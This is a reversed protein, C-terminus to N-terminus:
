KRGFDDEFVFEKSMKWFSDTEESLVENFYAIVPGMQQKVFYLGTYSDGYRNFYETEVFLIIKALKVKPLKGSHELIALILKKLKGKQANIDNRMFMGEKVKM